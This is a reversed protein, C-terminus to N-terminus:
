ETGANTHVKSDPQSKLMLKTQYLHGPWFVSEVSADHIIIETKQQKQAGDGHGTLIEVWTM